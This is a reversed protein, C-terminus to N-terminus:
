SLCGTLVYKVKNLRLNFWDVGNKRNEKAWEFGPAAWQKVTTWKDVEVHKVSDQMLM